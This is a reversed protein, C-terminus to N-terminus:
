GRSQVERSTVELQRALTKRGRALRAKVTGTALHLQGAIEDVSLGVHHHLVIAQRQGMPLARLGAVLDLSETSLEPDPAVPSSPALRLLVAARRRARRTASSAPNLAVRRVWADPAQYTGIRKWHLAARTYAEQLVYEAEPLDGGTVAFLEWLLRSYSASYFQEFDDDV